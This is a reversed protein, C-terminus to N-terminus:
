RNILNKEYFLRREWGRVTSEDPLSASVRIDRGIEENKYNGTNHYPMLDVGDLNPISAALRAIENFHDDTDNLGPIMPCRLRIRANRLALYEIGDFLVSREVGVYELHDAADTMKYDLLFLDVVPLLADWQARSGFGSTDLAVHIGEAHAREALAYTFAFSAMPEGGSITLGGNCREYFSRDKLVIQMVEDVAMERGYTKEEGRCTTVTQPERAISEPNHCWACNLPCGKLFVTTRIGPGDVMSGRQIDFVIATPHVLNKMSDIPM